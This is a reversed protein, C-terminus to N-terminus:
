RDDNAAGGEARELRHRLLNMKRETEELESQLELVKMDSKRYQDVARAVWDAFYDIRKKYMKELEKEYLKLSINWLLLGIIVIVLIWIM